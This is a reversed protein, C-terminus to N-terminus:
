IETCFITDDDHINVKLLVGPSIVIKYVHAGPSAPLVAYKGGKSKM